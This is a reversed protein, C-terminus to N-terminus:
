CAAACGARGDVVVRSGVADPEGPGARGPHRNVATCRRTLSPHHVLVVVAAVGQLVKELALQEVPAPLPQEVVGVVLGALEDLGGVGPIPPTVLGPLPDRGVERHEPLAGLEGCVSGAFRL